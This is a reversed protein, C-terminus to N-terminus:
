FTWSFIFIFFIKRRFSMFKKKGGLFKEFAIALLQLPHVNIIKKKFILYIVQLGSHFKIVLISESTETRHASEREWLLIESHNRWEAKLILQLYKKCSLESHKVRFSKKKGGEAFVM